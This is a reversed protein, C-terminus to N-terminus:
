GYINVFCILVPIAYFLVALGRESPFSPDEKFGLYYNFFFSAGFYCIVGLPM